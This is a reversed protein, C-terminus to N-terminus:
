VTTGDRSLERDEVPTKTGAVAEKLEKIFEVVWPRNTSPREAILESQLHTILRSAHNNFSVGFDTHLASLRALAEHRNDPSDMILKSIEALEGDRYERDLM